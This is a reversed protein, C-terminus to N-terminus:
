KIRVGETQVIEAGPCGGAEKIAKKDISVVEKVIRYEAPIKGEDSIKVSPPNKQVRISFLPYEYKPVMMTKMGNLLYSKLSDIRSKKAAKREQLRKIEATLAEIDAETNRIFYICNEVKDRFEGGIEFLKDAFAEENELTFEAEGWEDLVKKYEEKITYLSSM